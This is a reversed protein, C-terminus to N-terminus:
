EVWSLTRLINKEQCHACCLSCFGPLVVNWALRMDHTASNIILQGRWVCGQIRSLRVRNLQYLCDSFPKILVQSLWKVAIADGGNYDAFFQALHGFREELLGVFHQVPEFGVLLEQAIGESGWEAVVDACLCLQTLRVFLACISLLLLVPGAGATQLYV